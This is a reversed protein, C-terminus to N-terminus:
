AGKKKPKKKAGVNGHRLLREKGTWKAKVPAGADDLRKLELFFRDGHYIGKAAHVMEHLLIENVIHRDYRIARYLLITREKRDCYGCAGIDAGPIIEGFLVRYRSLRGGFYRRNFEAFLDRLQKETM